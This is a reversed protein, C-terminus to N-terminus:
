GRINRYHEQCMEAWYDETDAFCSDCETIFNSEDNVYATNMRRRCVDRGHKGCSPCRPGFLLSLFREWLNKITTM